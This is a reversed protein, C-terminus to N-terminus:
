IQRRLWRIFNLLKARRKRSLGRCLCKTETLTLKVQPQGTDVLDAVHMKFSLLLRTFGVIFALQLCSTRLRGLGPGINLQLALNGLKFRLVLLLVLM